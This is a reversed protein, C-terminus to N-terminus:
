VSEPVGTSPIDGRRANDDGLIVECGLRVTWAVDHRCAPRNGDPGWERVTKRAITARCAITALVEVRQVGQEDGPARM